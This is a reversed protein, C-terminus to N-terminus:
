GVGEQQLSPRGFLLTNRETTTDTKHGTKINQSVRISQPSTSTNKRCQNHRTNYRTNHQQIVATTDGLLLIVFLLTISFCSLAGIGVFVLNRKCNIRSQRTAKRHVAADCRDNSVANYTFRQVVDRLPRDMCLAYPLAIKARAKTSKGFGLFEKSRRIKTAQNVSRQFGTPHGRM